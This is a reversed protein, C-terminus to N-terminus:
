LDSAMTYIRLLYQFGIAIAARVERPGFNRDNLGFEVHSKFHILTKTYQM